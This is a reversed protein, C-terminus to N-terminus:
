PRLLVIVFSYAVLEGVGNAFEYISVRGDGNRDANQFDNFNRFENRDLVGDNNRDAAAFAFGYPEYPPRYAM